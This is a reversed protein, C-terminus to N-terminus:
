STETLETYDLLGNYLNLRESNEFNQAFVLKRGSQCADLYINPCSTGTKMM